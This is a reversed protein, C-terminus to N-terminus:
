RAGWLALGRARAVARARGGAKGICPVLEPELEDLAAKLRARALCFVAPLIRREVELDGLRAPLCRVAEMSPNVREGAFPEFGTVLARM